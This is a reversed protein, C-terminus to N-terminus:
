LCVSMPLQSLLISSIQVALKYLFTYFVHGTSGPLGSSNFTIRTSYSLLFFALVTPLEEPGHLCVLREGRVLSLPLLWDWFTVLSPVQLHKAPLLFADSLRYLVPGSCGICSLAM